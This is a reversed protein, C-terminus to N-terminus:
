RPPSQIRLLRYCSRTFPECGELVSELIHLQMRPGKAAGSTTPDLTAKRALQRYQRSSCPTIVPRADATWRCRKCEMNQLLEERARGGSQVKRTQM